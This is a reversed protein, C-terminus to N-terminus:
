FALRLGARGLGYYKTQNPIVVRADVFMGLHECFRFEMGAGGQGFSLKALDFQHGGGGFIYPAFGSQGLPFRLIMNISASDVFVGSTGEAYADVGLGFNRTFFYNGGLGAGLRADHRVEAQSLHDLSYKGISGSGFADLSFENPRYLEVPGTGGNDAALTSTAALMVIASGVMLKNKIHIKMPTLNRREPTEAM